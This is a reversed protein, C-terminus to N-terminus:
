MLITTKQEKEEKSLNQYGECVKKRLREKNELYYKVPFAESMKLCMFFFDNFFNFFFYLFIFFYICFPNILLNLFTVKKFKIIGM